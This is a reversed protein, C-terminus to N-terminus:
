SRGHEEPKVKKRVLWEGAVLVAILIYAIFGNYLLWVEDSAFLATGAAVSGNICFFVCWVKTVTRTYAIGEPPLDPEKLRAIREVATMPAFLSGAFVTLFSLNMLVPYFKLGTLQGWGAMVFLLLVVTILLIKRENVHGGILWRLGLLVLLVPLIFSIDFTLAGWYVIFPYAM